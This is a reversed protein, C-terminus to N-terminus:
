LTEYIWEFLTLRIKCSIKEECICNVDNLIDYVISSFNTPLEEHCDYSRLMKDMFKHQEKHIEDNLDKM